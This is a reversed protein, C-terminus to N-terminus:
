EPPLSEQDPKAHRGTTRNMPVTLGTTSVAPRGAPHRTTGSQDTTGSQGTGAADDHPPPAGPPPTAPAFPSASTPPAGPPPTAPAFPSASTPPASASSTAHTVPRASASSAVKTFPTATTPAAGARRTGSAPPAAAPPHSAFAQEAPHLGGPTQGIAPPGSVPPGSVPLAAAPAQDPAAQIAPAQASLAQASPVAAAAAAAAKAAEDIVSDARLRAEYAEKGGRVGFLRRSYVLYVVLLLNLVLLVAKTATVSGYLEYIELPLGLSTVIMAFYEGWRKAQWLAFAEVASVLALVTIGLAIFTLKTSSVHLLSEIRHILSEKITFGLQDFVSRIIPIEKNIAQTLTLRSSAFKWVGAAVAGFLVFRIAREIAFLRLIFDGRIEKGRRVIPADAAPGSQHPTGPVFTGCRLCQWLDGAATTAHVHERLHPEDPAYTTHGARGCRYLSWDM